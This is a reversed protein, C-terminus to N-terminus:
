NWSKYALASAIDMGAALTASTQQSVLDAKQLQELAEQESLGHQEYGRLQADYGLLERGSFFGASWRFLLVVLLVGVAAAAVATQGSPRDKPDARSWARWALAAIVAAIFLGFVTGNLRGCAEAVDTSAQLYLPAACEPRIINGM